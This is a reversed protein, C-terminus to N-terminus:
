SPREVLEDATRFDRDLLHEIEAAPRPPAFLYGQALDCGLDGLEDVQEPTEVGEALVSLGLAQTMSVIAAVIASDDARRGLGEIFSRDIKLLHVPFRRLYGLSSYGTGFDDIALRVGMGNLALLLTITSPANSMLVSETIELCLMSPDIGTDTLANDVLTTLDPQALQTPSLNVAVRLPRSDPRAAAWRSAQRCTELMLFEGLPVILGTDEALPIFDAPGLLGREPHQWRVLAELGVMSGTELDIQPQYFVRLEEREVARRLDTEVQLHAVTQARMREDFLEHRGKGRRKADFMAADAHSVLSEPTDEGNQSLAIGICATVYTERDDEGGFPAEVAERM